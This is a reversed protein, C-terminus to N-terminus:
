VDAEVEIFLTDDHKRFVRRTDPWAWFGGIKLMRFQSNLWIRNIEHQQELTPGGIASKDTLYGYAGTRVFDRSLEDPTMYDGIIKITKDM